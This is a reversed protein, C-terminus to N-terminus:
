ARNRKKIRRTVFTGERQTDGLYLLFAQLM